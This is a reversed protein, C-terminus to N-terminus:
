VLLLLKEIRSIPILGRGMKYIKGLGNPDDVFVETRGEEDNPSVIYSVLLGNSEHKCMDWEKFARNCVACNM